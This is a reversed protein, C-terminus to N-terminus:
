TSGSTMIEIEPANGEDGVDTIKGIVSSLQMYEPYTFLEDLNEKEPGGLDKGNIQILLIKLLEKQMSLAMLLKNDDGSRGAAKAALDQDRIQMQRLVVEKKSSLIVKYVDM